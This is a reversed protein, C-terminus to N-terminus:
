LPKKGTFATGGPSLDLGPSEKQSKCSCVKLLTTVVQPLDNLFLIQPGLRPAETLKGEEWQGEHCIKNPFPARHSKRGGLCVTSM